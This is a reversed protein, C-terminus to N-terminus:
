RSWVEGQCPLMRKLLSIVAVYVTVFLSSKRANYIISGLKGSHLGNYDEGTKSMWAGKQNKQTKKQTTRCKSTAIAINQLIVWLLM